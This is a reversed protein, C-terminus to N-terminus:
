AGAYRGVHVALRDATVTTETALDAAAAGHWFAGSRAAEVPGLGRAWLAAIMGALVDGTGITALEPGGSLVAWPVTGDTVYTPWGKLLVVCGMERALAAAGVPGPAHDCLRRFEGAHPTVVLRGAARELLERHTLADADAVVARAHDAVAAVVEGLDGLGPGVVVVDYRSCLAEIDDVEYTLLEPGLGAVVERQPSAVGVAGAGFHLAARGAMVVAGTMGANGGVVLVSGASWKHADRRREPRPCDSAEAVRLTPEGEALGIDAITVMGSRDPGEGLLHGLKLAGFTVTRSAVFGGDPAEGTDPDLGTPVDISLVPTDVEFWARLEDPLGPRFGGGFLADIVLDCPRPAGLPVIPVGARRAADAAGRAADTRPEALAHVTVAVGRRRLYRAAVYGDGGNNGPGCLVAVQSGYAAGMEVAELAVAWGARDMLVDVPDASRQDMRASEAATVVPIM